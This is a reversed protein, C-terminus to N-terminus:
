VGTKSPNYGPQKYLTHKKELIDPKYVKEIWEQAPVEEIAISV